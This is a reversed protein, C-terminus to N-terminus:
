FDWRWTFGLTVLGTVGLVGSTIRRAQVAHLYQVEAREYRVVSRDLAQTYHEHTDYAHRTPAYATWAPPQPALLIQPLVSSVILGGGVLFM